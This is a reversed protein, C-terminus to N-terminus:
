AHAGGLRGLCRCSVPHPPVLTVAQLLAGRPLNPPLRGGQGSLRGKPPESGQGQLGGGPPRAPPWDELGPPLHPPPLPCPLAWPEAWMRSWRPAELQFCPQGRPGM